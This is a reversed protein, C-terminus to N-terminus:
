KRDVGSEGGEGRGRSKTNTGKGRKICLWLNKGRAYPIPNPLKKETKKKVAYKEIKRERKKCSNYYVIALIGAQEGGSWKDRM